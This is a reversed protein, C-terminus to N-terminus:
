KWMTQYLPYSLNVSSFHGKCHGICLFGDGGMLFLYIIRSCCLCRCCGFALALMFASSRRLLILLFGNSRGTFLYGCDRFTPALRIARGRRTVFLRSGGSLTPWHLTLDFFYVLRCCFRLGLLDAFWYRLFLRFLFSRSGPLAGCAAPFLRFSLRFPLFRM